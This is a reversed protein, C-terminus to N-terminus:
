KLLSVAAHKLLQLFYMGQRNKVACWCTVCLLYNEQQCDNYTFNLYLTIIFISHLKLLWFVALFIQDIYGYSTKSCCYLLLPLWFYCCYVCSFCIFWCPRLYPVTPHPSGYLSCPRWCHTWCFVLGKHIIYIAAESIRKHEFFLEYYFLFPSM